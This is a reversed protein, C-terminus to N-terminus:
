KEVFLAFLVDKRNCKHINVMHRLYNHKHKSAYNCVSCRFPKDVGCEWKIHKSLSGKHRYANPCKTCKYPYALFFVM